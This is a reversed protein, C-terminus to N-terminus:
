IVLSSGDMWGDRRGARGSEGVRSLQLLSEEPPLRRHFIGCPLVGNETALRKVNSAECCGTRRESFEDVPCTTSSLPFQPSQRTRQRADVATHRGGRSYGLIRPRTCASFSSPFPAFTLLPSPETEMSASTNNAPRRRIVPAFPSLTPNPERSLLHGILGNGEKRGEKTRDVLPLTEAMRSVPQRRTHRQREVSRLLTPHM